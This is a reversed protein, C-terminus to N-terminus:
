RWVLALQHAQASSGPHVSSRSFKHSRQNVTQRSLPNENRL